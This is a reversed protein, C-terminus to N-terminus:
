KDLRQTHKHVRITTHSKIGYVHKPRTKASVCYVVNYLMSYLYTYYTSHVYM